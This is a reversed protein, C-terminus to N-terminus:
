KGPRRPRPQTPQNASGESNSKTAVNLDIRHRSSSRSRSRRQQPVEEQQPQVDGHPLIQPVGQSHYYQPFYQPDYGVSYQSYSGGQGHHFFQQYQSSSGGIGQQYWQQRWQDEQQKKLIEERQYTLAIDHAEIEEQSPQIPHHFSEDIPEAEVNLDFETNKKCNSSSKQKVLMNVINKYYALTNKYEEKNINILKKKVIQETSSANMWNGEISGALSAIWEYLRQQFFPIQIVKQPNIKEMLCIITQLQHLVQWNGLIKHYRDLLDFIKGIIRTYNNQTERINIVNRFQEDISLFEGGIHILDEKDCTGSFNGNLLTINLTYLTTLVNKTPDPCTVPIIYESNPHNPWGVHLSYKNKPCPSVNFLHTAIFTPIFPIKNFPIDAGTQTFQCEIYLNTFGINNVDNVKFQLFARISNFLYLKLCIFLIFYNIKFKM